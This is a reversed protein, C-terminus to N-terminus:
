SSKKTSIMAWDNRTQSIVIDLGNLQSIETLRPIDTVLIGSMILLGNKNLCSVYKEMDAILINLNINAVVVDYKENGLYTADGLVVKIKSCKNAIVNENANEFAWKDNDIATISSAGLKEAVIALIGTGCGMDLLSKDKLDINFMERIM